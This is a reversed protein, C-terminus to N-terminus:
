KARVLTRFAEISCSAGSRTRIVDRRACMKGDPNPKVYFGSYYGLPCNASVHARMRKGNNLLLDVSDSATLMAGVIRGTEICDKAKHERFLMPPPPPPMDREIITTRVTFTVEPVHIVVHQGDFGPGADLARAAPGTAPAALLLTVATAAFIPNLM